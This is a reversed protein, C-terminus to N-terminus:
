LGQLSIKLTTSICRYMKEAICNGTPGYWQMTVSDRFMNYLCLASFLFKNVMNYVNEWFDLTILQFSTLLAYGM